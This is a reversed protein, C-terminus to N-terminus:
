GNKMEKSISITIGNYKSKNTILRGGLLYASPESVSYVGITDKVFQSKNFKNEVKQMEDITFIKMPCNFYKAAEIIGDEDKKVEVTGIAKISKNSLSAEM